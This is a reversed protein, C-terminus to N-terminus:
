SGERIRAFIGAVLRGFEIRRARDAIREADTPNSVFGLELLCSPGPFALVALRGVATASETRVGRDRLGFATLAAIQISRALALDSADRYIATTGTASPSDASDLHFSVMHTCGADTAQRARSGVPNSDSAEGTVIMHVAIGAEQLAAKVTRAAALALEAERRSGSEAGPDYVGPRTNGWGHGADLAVKM